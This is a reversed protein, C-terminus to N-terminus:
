RWEAVALLSQGMPLRLREHVFDDIPSLWPCLAEFAAISGMGIEKKRLIRGNMVWGALGFLNFHELKLRAEPAAQELLGRLRTKSYRRFHGFSRDMEGFAWAHAPVFTILRKPGPARSRRLIEGLNKFAAVDDEIHEMVNFSIITDFNEDFYPQLDSAMLDLRRVLARPSDDKPQSFSDALVTLLLPDTETLVLLDGRPLWRSMNGIGAGIELTRRGLYPSVKDFVWKQYRKAEALSRLEFPLEHLKASTSTSAATATSM